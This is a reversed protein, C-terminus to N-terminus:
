RQTESVHNKWSVTMAKGNIRKFNLIKKVELEGDLVEIDKDQWSYDILMNALALELALIYFVPYM